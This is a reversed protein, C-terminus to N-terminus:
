SLYEWHPVFVIRRPLVDPQMTQIQNRLLEEQRTKAGQITYATASTEITRNLRADEHVQGWGVVAVGLWLVVSWIRLKM